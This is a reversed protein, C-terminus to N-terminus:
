QIHATWTVTGSSCSASALDGGSTDVRVTGTAGGNGDFSGTLSANSSHSDSDTFSFAASFVGGPIPAGGFNISPYWGGGGDSCSEDVPATFSQVYRGGQAVDFHVQEGQSTTGVYHGDAPRPPQPPPATGAFHASFSLSGTTCTNGNSLTTAVQLTGSVNGATDFSGHITIGAAALAFAGSADVPLGSAANDYTLIYNGTCTEGVHYTVTAFPSNGGGLGLAVVIPAQQSTTGTYYGVQWPPPLLKPAPPPSKPKPKRKHKPPKRRAVGEVHVPPSAPAVGVGLLRGHRGAAGGTSV